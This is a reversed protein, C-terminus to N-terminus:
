GRPQEPNMNLTRLLDIYFASQKMVVLLVFAYIGLMVTGGLALRLIAFPIPVTLYQVIASAIGALISAVLAQGATSLIEWVSIITGHLTWYIHPVMWLVMMTSFSLAVGAPGYPLGVLYSCIVLPSLVLAIKLSREQLGISPLLWGIPNIISFVVITPALLRFVISAEAWRPGLTVLIIDDAFVACAVTAPLTISVVFSYGKL